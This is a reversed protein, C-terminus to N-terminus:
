EPVGGRDVRQSFDTSGGGALVKAQGVWDDRTARGNFGELNSDVWAVEEATWAALQDFHYYGLSNLLEELRPGIGKIRKLDDPGGERPVELSGPKSSASPVDAVPSGATAATAAAAVAPESVPAAPPAPAVVAQPATAPAPRAASPPATAAQSAARTTMPAPAADGHLWWVVGVFVLIGIVLGLLFGAIIWFLLLAVLGAALATAWTRTSWSGYDLFSPRDAM